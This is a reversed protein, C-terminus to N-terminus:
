SEYIIKCESRKSLTEKFLLSPKRTGTELSFLAQAIGIPGCVSLKFAKGACVCVCLVQECPESLELHTGPLGHALVCESHTKHFPFYGAAQQEAPSTATM